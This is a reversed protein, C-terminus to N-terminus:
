WIIRGFSYIDSATSQACLGDRIDPAVEPHNVKYIDQEKASLHYMKAQKIHCAKGFDIIVAKVTSDSNNADLVINDSKIDNHLIKYISHLEKIGELIQLLICKWNICYDTLIDPSKGCIASHLTVSTNGFGHLSVILADESICVGFLYPLHCSTFQSLINAEKCLSNYDTHRYVNKCAKFHSFYVMTCTGFKGAGLCDSTSKSDILKISPKLAIVESKNQSSTALTASLRLQRM